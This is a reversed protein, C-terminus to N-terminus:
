DRSSPTLMVATQSEGRRVVIKVPVGVRLSDLSFTYDYINEITHGDVEIVVDGARLGAAEAPGGAAVGSLKLGPGGASNTYDPITGLYVRLGARPVGGAPKASAVWLPAEEQSALSASIDAILQAIRALAFYDLRDPLDRPTHYEEHSGTFASLIPVKKLHFTTADTPLYSDGVASVPLGIAVNREEIQRLWVPSSDIGLLTVKERMRGVMDMNLYAAIRQSLDPEGHPNAVTELEREAYAASGLLGLEEGSWAAFEIDRINELRGEAQEHALYDAIELLAAVGSANDDAGRHIGDREDGHALSGAGEGRGLHDVHAGILIRPLPTEPKPETDSRRVAPLRALVNRGKKRQQQIDITGGIRVGELVFGPMAIQRDIARQLDALSHSSGAEILRNAADDGLSALAISTGGQSADFRLSVLEERVKSEPGSVFLVGRAGRDRAVMAKYRLSSHRNLTRRAQEDLNPPMYRLVLVWKDEVDLHAYDDVAAHADTAPAVIGYGAFVVESDPIDGVRSFSLPRWDTDLVFAAIENEGPLSARLENAQGLSVGATFGFEQFYSNNDGAPELGTARFVRAVYSTAIREGVTGTLRGEAEDSALADVFAGLERPEIAGSLRRPVPLLPGAGHFSQQALGLRSRALDDNWSARHIQSQGNKPKRTYFVEDGDPSFVPLGDFGDQQTVRVPASGGAADVLYLEFNAFGHLNTAFIVYDGSPHYFPAWSMAQLNTLQRVDSGDTKMSFIEAQTGEENFRRFVIRKGDPSFFPGGDYGTTETLRRVSGGRADMIYIDIFRSLDLEAKERDEASLDASLEGEADYIHRNSSFVIFRGDPSWSSEADYGWASTLQRPKAGAALPLKMSFIDYHPDYDWEYRRKEGHERRALEEQQLRESAPDLHTSSFLLRSGSPHIWGCTTKGHGPSAREVSGSELDLLYIQYFPNGAERESQFVLKSGDRSLYGEGSRRGAFTLQRRPGLLSSASQHEATETDPTHAKPGIQCAAALGVILGVVLAVVLITAGMRAPRAPGPPLQSLCRMRISVLRGPPSAANDRLRERVAFRMEPRQCGGGQPEQLKTAAHDAQAQVV